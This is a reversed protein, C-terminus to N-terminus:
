LCIDFLVMKTITTNVIPIAKGDMYIQFDIFLYCYMSPYIIFDLIRVCPRRINYDTEEFPEQKINCYM